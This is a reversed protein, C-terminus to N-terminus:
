QRVFKDTMLVKGNEDTGKLIYNGTPLEAVNFQLMNRGKKCVASKLEDVKKGGMDYIVFEVFGQEPMTFEILVYQLAPNPYLSPKAEVTTTTNTNAFAATGLEAMQIGYRKDSRGYIGTIWVKGITSYFPQSGTYDGWRHVGQMVKIVNV